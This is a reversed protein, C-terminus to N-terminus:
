EGGQERRCVRGAGTVALARRWGARSGLGAPRPRMLSCAYVVDLPLRFRPDANTLVFPAAFLLVFWTARADFLRRAVVIEYGSRIWWWLPLAVAVLQVAVQAAGDALRLNPRWLFTYAKYLTVRGAAVPESTLFRLTCSLYSAPAVAKPADAIGCWGLGEALSPEANYEVRLSELAAPNNGAFLNYPGNAPWFLFRDAATVSFAVYILVGAALVVAARRWASFAGPWTGGIIVLPLVSVVNPRIAAMAGLWAGGSAPSASFALVFLRATMAVNIGNDNVRAINVVFYPHFFVATAALVVVWRQATSTARTLSTLAVRAMGAMLGVYAALHLFRVASGPDAMPSLSLLWPYGLPEFSVALASARLERALALYVPMTVELPRWIAVALGLLISVACGGMVAARATTADLSKTM